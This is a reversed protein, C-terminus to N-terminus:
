DGGKKASAKVEVLSKDAILQAVRPTHSVEVGQMGETIFVEGGPHNPDVEWLIVQTSGDSRETAKANVKM